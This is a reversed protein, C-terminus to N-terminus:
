GTNACFAPHHKEEFAKELGFGCVSRGTLIPISKEVEMQYVAQLVAGWLPSLTIVGSFRVCHGRFVSQKMLISNPIMASCLLLNDHLCFVLDDNPSEPLVIQFIHRQVDWLALDHYEGAYGARALGADHEVGNSGLALTLHVLGVGGEHPASQGLILLRLNLM